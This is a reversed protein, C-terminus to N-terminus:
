IIVFPTDTNAPQINVKIVVRGDKELKRWFRLGKGNLNKVCKMQAERRSSSITDAEIYLGEKKRKYIWQLPFATAYYTKSKM